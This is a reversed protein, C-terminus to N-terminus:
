SCQRFHFASSRSKTECHCLVPRGSRQGLGDSGGIIRELGMSRWRRFEQITEAQQTSQASMNHQM